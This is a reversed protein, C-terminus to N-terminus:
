DTVLFMFNSVSLRELDDESLRIYGIGARKAAVKIRFEYIGEKGDTDFIAVVPKKGTVYSAFLSQQVSDLSSRKDLGGEIVYEKTEIDIRISARNYGWEFEHATETLASLKEALFSNFYDENKKVEQAYSPELLIGLVLWLVFNLKRM